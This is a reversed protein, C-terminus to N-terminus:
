ENGVCVIKQEKRPGLHVCMGPLVGCASLQQDPPVFKFDATRVVFDSSRSFGNADLLLNRLQNTTACSGYAIGYLGQGTVLTLCADAPPREDDRREIDYPKAGEAERNRRIEAIRGRQRKTTVPAPESTTLEEQAVVGCYFDFTEQEMASERASKERIARRKERRKARRLEEQRAKGNWARACEELATEQEETRACEEQMAVQEEEACEEQMALQEEAKACKEQMAVQEEAKACREQMADQEASACEEQIAEQKASACEKQTAEKEEQIAGQEVIASEEPITKQEEAESCDEQIAEEERTRKEEGAREERDTEEKMARQIERDVFFEPPCSKSRPRCARDRVVLTWFTKEVVCTVLQLMKSMLPQPVFAAALCFVCGTPTRQFYM